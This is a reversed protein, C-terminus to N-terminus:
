YDNLILKNMAILINQKTTENRPIGALKKGMGCACGKSMIGVYNKTVYPLAEPLQKGCLCSLPYLQRLIPYIKFWTSLKIKPNWMIDIFIFFYM